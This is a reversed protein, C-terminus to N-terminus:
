NSEVEVKFPPINQLLKKGYPRKVLRNDLILIEGIDTEHRILRGIMQTLRISAEPLTEELFANGGQTTIWDNRTRVIPNTPVTFPLKHIILLELYKGPLDIGEAFSDVGFIISSKGLNIMKKHNNIIMSKSIEGQLVIYNKISNPMFDFVSRMANISTFLVLVGKNLELCQELKLKIILATENIHEIVKQPSFKLNPVILKSKSYEFPSSFHSHKTNKDLGIDTIFKNFSGLSRITASCFIVSNKIHQWFLRQLLDGAVTASVFITYDFEYRMLSSGSDSTLEDLEKMNEYKSFRVWKAIPPSSHCVIMDFVYVLNSLREQYFSISSIYKAMSDKISMDSKDIFNELKRKISKLLSLYDLTKLRIAEILTILDNSLNKLLFNENDLNVVGNTNSIYKIGDYIKALLNIIAKKCEVSNERIHASFIENPLQSLIKNIDNIWKQSSMLSAQGSFANLAKEPFNHCEDLIYISKDYEPLISGDGLSVHSLLLSHNVVIIDATRMRNRAKLFSCDSIFECHKKVCTSSTNSVKFLDSKPIKKTLLDFDGNWGLSLEKELSNIVSNSIESQGNIGKLRKHCIYRTRGKAIAYTIDNGILSPFSPLDKKILQEQLAITNTSIIVHKKKSINKQGLYSGFLYALTKGVGTGAEIVLKEGNSVAETIKNIMNIQSKRVKLNAKKFFDEINM